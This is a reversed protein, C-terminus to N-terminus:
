SGNDDSKSGVWAAVQARSTFGLKALIREVHGEATRQSIVLRAAIEKNSRGGALLHAVQLERPTLPVEGPVVPTPRKDPPKEPRQKPPKEPQQLAYAVADEMPLELGRDYAAQFAQEGVAQRAQWYCDRHYSALHEFGELTTGMSRWLSAAAGLLVAAREYQHGSAAIWALAEVCHANDMRDNLDAQLRLSEQQLEAARELEGRRWAALGLAWLWRASYIRRISEGSAETLAALERQRAVVREEDGALGAAVALSILLLARQSGHAAAAPLVALGDEFHAIAQNLDGAFVCVAGACYAAFAQTAADNLQRALGTGEALLARAAGRDGSVTALFGALLLGQARWATPERARALAQGVRYRGESVHGANWYNEDIVTRCFTASPRSPRYAFRL